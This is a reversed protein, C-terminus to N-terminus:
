RCFGCGSDIRQARGEDSAAAPSGRQTADTAAPMRANAGVVGLSASRLAMAFASLLAVDSARAHVGRSSARRWLRM